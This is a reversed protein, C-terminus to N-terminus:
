ASPDNRVIVLYRIATQSGSSVKVKFQSFWRVDSYHPLMKEVDVIRYANTYRHCAHRQLKNNVAAVAENLPKVKSAEAVFASQAASSECIVAPYKPEYVMPGQTQAMGEMASLLLLTMAAIAMLRRM